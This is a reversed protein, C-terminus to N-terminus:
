WHRPLGLAAQGCHVLGERSISPAALAQELRSIAQAGFEDQRPVSSASASRLKRRAILRAYM